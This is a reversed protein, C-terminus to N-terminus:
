KTGILELKFTRAPPAASEWSRRCGLEIVTRGEAVLKYKWFHVGARGPPKGGSVFADDVLACVPKGEQVIRWRYGTTPNEPLRIEIEEGLGAEIKHGDSHEDFELMQTDPLIRNRSDWQLDPSSLEM